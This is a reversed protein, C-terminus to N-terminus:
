PMADFCLLRGNELAVIIRGNPDVATGGKVANAPISAIWKDTGDTTNIAVLFSQDPQNDPHGTALLTKETVAFSTFRRNAKDSWLPEPMKGGRRVWRAAEKVPKKTGPPLAPQRALNVFQSGEYSADHSM